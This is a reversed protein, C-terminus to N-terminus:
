FLQWRLLGDQQQQKQQQQQVKTHYTHQVKNVNHSAHKQAVNHYLILTALLFHCLIQLATVITNPNMM